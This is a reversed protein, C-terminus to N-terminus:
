LELKKILKIVENKTISSEESKPFITIVNINTSNENQEITYTIVRYGGSKGKNEGPLRIKYINSGYSIGLKPNDILDKELQVLSSALTAYKKLLRKAQQRFIPSFLVRNGM